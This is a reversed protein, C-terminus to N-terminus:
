TKKFFDDSLICSQNDMLSKLRLIVEKEKPTMEVIFEM